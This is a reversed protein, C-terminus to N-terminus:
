FRKEPTENLCMLGTFSIRFIITYCITIYILYFHNESYGVTAVGPDDIDVAYSNRHSYFDEAM